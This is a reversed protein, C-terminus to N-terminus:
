NNIKEKENWPFMCKALLGFIIDTILGLIGITLIGLIITETSLYRQAQMIRFGLGSTAAVLEAVVLYTWAWGWVTRMTDWINPMAAKVVIDKIVEFRNLGLTLGVELVSKKVTKCNDAIMIVQQFFVGFFIIFFKQMDSTGFWLISLPIFAVVPMYRVFGVLPEWFAKWTKSTGMMVGIPLAFLTALLFGILIRYFSVWIDTFFVGEAIQKRAELVVATPTPLFLNGVLGGYTVFSWIALVILIGSVSIVKFRMM